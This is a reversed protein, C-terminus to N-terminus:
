LPSTIQDNTSALYHPGKPGSAAYDFVKARIIKIMKLAAIPPRAKRGAGIAWSIHLDRITAVAMGSTARAFLYCQPLIAFGIGHRIFDIIPSADTEKALSLGLGEEELAQDVLMRASNSRKALVLPLPAIEAMTLAKDTAFPAPERCGLVMSETMLPSLALESEALPITLVGLDVDRSLLADRLQSSTAERVHLSVSPNSRRPSKM